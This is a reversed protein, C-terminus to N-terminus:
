PKRAVEHAKGAVERACLVGSRVASEMTSPWGTDTWEGALFLNPVPTRQPLRGAAAGPSPRFTAHREKVIVCRTVAAGQARPLLRPMEEVFKARIEDKPMDIFKHAGSLSVAIYQGHGSTDGLILSKNFVWHADSDPFAAFAHVMVPRDYWLHVNVIPSMALKAARRFFDDRRLPEPLLDAMERPPVALVYADAHMVGHQHIRLRTIGAGDGDLQEAHHDLLVAGGRAEIYRQAEQYLLNSLGVSAYGIDAGHVTALFGEQFVMIAQAASVRRPEDNLTPLIVFNWFRDIATDRQGHAKLWDYFSVNDLRDRSRHSMLRMRASAWAVRMRDGFSLHHYRLLAPALHLPPPWLPASYLDARRQRANIVPVRMRRQMTTKHAVGLKDLLGTYSTCCKMFVHQGNDIERNSEKDTFSYVRGGLYPRRELLRVKWGLGALEMAAAIGALGGGVIIAQRSALSEGAQNQAM